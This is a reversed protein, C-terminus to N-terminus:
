CGRIFLQNLTGVAWVGMNTSNKLLPTKNSTGKERHKDKLLITKSLELILAITSIRYFM